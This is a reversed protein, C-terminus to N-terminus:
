VRMHEEELRKEAELQAQLEEWDGWVEIKVGNAVSLGGLGVALGKSSLRAQRRPPSTM